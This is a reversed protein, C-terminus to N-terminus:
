GGETLDRLTAPDCGDAAAGGRGPQARDPVTRYRVRDAVGGRPRDGCVLGPPLLRPRSVGERRDRGGDDYHGTVICAAPIDFLWIRDALPAHAVVIDVAGEASRAMRREKGTPPVGLFRIGCATETKGSIEHLYPPNAEAADRVRGYTGMTDDNNGGEVVVCHRGGAAIARLLGLFLETEDLRSRSCRDYAADGAFIIIDPETEEIPRLFSGIGVRGGASGKERTGGWALDSFALIRTRPMVRPPQADFTIPRAIPEPRM